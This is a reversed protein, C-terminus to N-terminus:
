LNTEFATNKGRPFFKPVKSKKKEEEIPLVKRKKKKERTLHESLV